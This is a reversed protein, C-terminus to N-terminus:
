GYTERILYIGPWIVIIGLGSNLPNPPSERVASTAIIQGSIGLITFIYKGNHTFSDEVGHLRM